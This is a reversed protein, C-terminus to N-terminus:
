ISTRRNHWQQGLKRRAEPAVWLPHDALDAYQIEVPNHLQKNALWSDWLAYKLRASDGQTHGLRALQAQNQEEGSMQRGTGPAYMRDRSAEIEDLPRRMLVIATDQMSLQPMQDFLAPCQVVVGERELLGQLMDSRYYKFQEERVAEFGTDRAIMEMAITTGSRHPGTVIVRKFRRLHSFPGQPIRQTQPLPGHLRALLRQALAHEPTHSLLGELEAIASPIDQTQIFHDTRELWATVIHPSLTTVVKFADMALQPRNRHRAAMGLSYAVATRPGLLGFAKQLMPIRLEDKVLKQDALLWLAIGQAPKSLRALDENTLPQRSVARDLMDGLPALDSEIVDDPTFSRRTATPKSLIAQYHSRTAAIMARESASAEAFRHNRLRTAEYTEPAAAFRTITDRLCRAGQEPTMDKALFIHENHTLRQVFAPIPTAIPVTGLAMAEYSDRICM